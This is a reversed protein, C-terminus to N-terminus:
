RYAMNRECCGGPGSCGMEEPSSGCCSVPASSKAIGSLSSPVSLIKKLNKSGCSRCEIAPSSSIVLIESKSGCDTCEFEFLPM